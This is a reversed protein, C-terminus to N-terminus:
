STPAAPHLAVDDAPQGLRDQDHHSHREDHEEHDPQAAVGRKEEEGGVRGLGVPGAEGALLPEIPGDVDLVRHEDLARDLAVEAAREPIALGGQGEDELPQGGGHLQGQGREAMESTTAMGAPTIEATRRSVGYSLRVM